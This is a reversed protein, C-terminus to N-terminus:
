MPGIYGTFVIICINWTIWQRENGQKSSTKIGCKIEVRTIHSPVLLRMTVPSPRPELSSAAWSCWSFILYRPLVQYRFSPSSNHNIFIFTDNFNFDPEKSYHLPAAHLSELGLYTRTSSKRSFLMQRTWLRLRVPEAVSGQVIINEKRIRFVFFFRWLDELDILKFFM